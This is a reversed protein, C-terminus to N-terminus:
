DLLKEFFMDSSYEKYQSQWKLFKHFKDEPLFKRAYAIHSIVAKKHAAERSFGDAFRFEAEKLEHYLLIDRVDKPIGKWIWISLSDDAVGGGFNLNPTVSHLAPNKSNVLKGTPHELSCWINYPIKGYQLWDVPYKFHPLKEIEELLCDLNM